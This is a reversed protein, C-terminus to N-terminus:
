VGKPNAPTNVKQGPLEYWIGSYIPETVVEFDDGEDVIKLPIVTKYNPLLTLDKIEVEGVFGKQWVDITLNIKEGPTIIAEYREGEPNLPAPANSRVLKLNAIKGNNSTTGDALNFNAETSVNKLVISDFAASSVGERSSSVILFKSMTHKFLLQVNSHLGMFNRANDAYMYDITEPHSQDALSFRIKNNLVRKQYPMYAMFNSKSGDAYFYIAEKASAANMTGQPLVNYCRNVSTSKNVDTKDAYMYIGAQTNVPYIVEQTFIDGGDVSASFQPQVDYGWQSHDEIDTCSVATLLLLSLSYFLSTVRM